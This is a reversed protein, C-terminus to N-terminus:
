RLTGTNSSVSRLSHNDAGINRGHARWGTQGNEEWQRCHCLTKRGVAAVPYKRETQFRECYLWDWPSRSHWNSLGPLDASQSVSLGARCSHGHRCALFAALRWLEITRNVTKPLCRWNAYISCRVSTVVPHSVSKILIEGDHKDNFGHPLHKM